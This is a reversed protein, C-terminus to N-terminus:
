VRSCFNEYGGSFIPWKPDVFIKRPICGPGLKQMNPVYIPGFIGEMVPKAWNEAMRAGGWVAIKGFLIPWNKPKPGIVKDLHLILLSKRLVNQGLKKAMFRNTFTEAELEAKVDLNSFQFKLWEWFSFLKPPIAPPARIASFQALGTISPINPGM